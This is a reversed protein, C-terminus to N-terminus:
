AASERNGTVCCGLSVLHQIISLIKKIIFNPLPQAGAIEFEHGMVRLLIKQTERTSGKPSHRGRIERM